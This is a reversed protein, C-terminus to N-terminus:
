RIFELYGLPLQLHVIKALLFMCTATVIGLLLSRAWRRDGSLVIVLTVYLVSGVVFGLVYQSAIFGLTLMLSWHWSMSGNGLRTEHLWSLNGLSLRRLTAGMRWIVFFLGAM